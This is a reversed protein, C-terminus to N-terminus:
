RGRQIVLGISTAVFSALALKIHTEKAFPPVDVFLDIPESLVDFCVDAVHHGDARLESVLREIDRRRFLVLMPNDDITAENSSVNYETTHVALGGVKLTRVSAKIFDIGAQISGLHELSCSSWTFDFDRYHSPVRTMDCTEFAVNRRFATDPCLGKGNLSDLSAAHQQSAIWGTATAADPSMDTALISTGRAAFAAPLPEQGVGFGVGRRDAALLGGAELHAAIFVHEWLKRHIRPREALADRWRQFERNRFDQATCVSSRFYLRRGIAPVIRYEDPLRGDMDHSIVDYLYTLQGTARLSRTTFSDIAATQLDQTAKVSTLASRARPGLLVAGGSADVTVGMLRAARRLARGLLRRMRASFAAKADRAASRLSASLPVAYDSRAQDRVNMGGRSFVCGRNEIFRCGRRPWDADRLEAPFLMSDWLRCGASSMRWTLNSWTTSLVTKIQEVHAAAFM